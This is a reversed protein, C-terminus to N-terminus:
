AAADRPVPLRVGWDGDGLIAGVYAPLPTGLEREAAAAGADEREAETAFRVFAEFDQRAMLATITKALDYGLMQGEDSAHFVDGSWLGQIREANWYRLHRARMEQLTYVSPAVGCLREETNVAIGEDLWNPLHLHRLSGHTLEHAIVRECTDVRDVVSVIQPRGADVFMGGSFGYEGGDPYFQAVYHYYAELDDLLLVPLKGPAPPRALAGLVRTVRTHARQTIKLLARADGPDAASLVLFGASEDIRYGEGFQAALQSLWARTGADHAEDEVAASPPPASDTTKTSRKRLWDFM